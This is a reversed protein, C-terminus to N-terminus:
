KGLLKRAAKAKDIEQMTIESMPLAEVIDLMDDLAAELEEIREAAGLRERILREMPWDGSRACDVIINERLSELLNRM